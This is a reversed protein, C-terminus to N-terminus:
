KVPLVSEVENLLNQVALLFQGSSPNSPDVDPMTARIQYVLGRIREIQEVAKQRAEARKAHGAGLMPVPVCDEEPCQFESEGNMFYAYELSGQPRYTICFLVNPYHRSFSRMTEEMNVWKCAGRECGREDIAEEAEKDFLRLHEIIREADAGNLEQGNLKITMNHESYDM